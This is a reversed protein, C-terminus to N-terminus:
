KPKKTSCCQKNARDWADQAAPRAADWELDSNGRNVDWDRELDAEVASFDAAASRARSEYGYRYAPEYHHYEVDSDVYNRTAYNKEWYAAEVTPDIEEAIAKGALGGAVGGVVAGVAAGIPGGFAGAIAGTAAGGATAGLGTGVPHSGYAGTIADPNHDTEVVRGTKKKDNTAM